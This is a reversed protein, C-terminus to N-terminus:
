LHRRKMVGREGYDLGDLSHHRLGTTSLSEWIKTGRFGIILRRPGWVRGTMRPSVSFGRVCKYYEVYGMESVIQLSTLMFKAAVKLWSDDVQIANM